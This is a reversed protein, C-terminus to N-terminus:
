ARRRRRMAVVMRLLPLVLQPLTFLGGIGEIAKRRIELSEVEVRSPGSRSAMLLLILAILLDVGGLIGAAAYFSMSRDIRIWYWAAIHGFAIAGIVFLLAVAAMVLRTVMRTAMAQLRISEAEAAVRALRLPRM